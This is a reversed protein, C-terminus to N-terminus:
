ETIRRRFLDNQVIATVLESFPVNELGTKSLIARIEPADEPNMARGLAYTLLKETLTRYYLSRHELLVAELGIVGELPPSGPFDGQADVTQGGETERWVGVADYNELAFGLPDIRLHCSKCASDARHQELRQRLPLTSDVTSESLAPIDAPPPPTPSGLLNELIWNGRVVPSTRTAYSTVALLSGQRLLGGRHSEEPLNVERFRSGYVHPIDYHRALRENLYTSRRSLLSEIALDKVVLDSFVMETEIKMATRLNHDFDPFLRQDPQVADLNRLYLWQSAFNQVLADSRPDRLMRQVQETLIQPDHLRGQDALNLLEEDPLSSWLFFSLRSALEYDSITYPTQTPVDTPDREIRFLFNPNVLIASLGAEIGRSFGHRRQDEHFFLMPTELDAATVPRRYAVRMLRSFIDKALQDQDEPSNPVMQFLRQRTPSQSADGPGYPGTISVEFLAPSLRPHRHRNFHVNLPQRKSEIVPFPLKLFTVGIERKGAEIRSEVWLHHDATRHEEDTKPRQLPHRALERRDSLIVLEHEALLGEVHEDRDRTLRAEIRYVGTSPFHYPILIGGRTGLPLGAVHGEQTEDPPLRYTDGQTLSESRGVVNRSITEAAVVYREALSPSLDSVNVNDFGHGESDPPLLDRVDISLGLLDRISNQYEYRTMRRFTPTRAAYDRLKATRDLRGRLQDVFATSEAVRPQEADPPPMQRSEVKRLIKEWLASHQELTQSSPSELSLDGAPDDAQHCDVCHQQVFGLLFEDESDVQGECWTPPVLGGIFMTMLCAFLTRGNPHM